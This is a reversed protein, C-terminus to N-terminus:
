SAFGCVRESVVFCKNPCKEVTQELLKKLDKGQEWHIVPLNGPMTIIGHPTVEPKVCIGCAICGAKCVERVKKGKDKSVCALFVQQDRPILAIIKRPCAEVCKGCATCKSEDIVPIEDAGMKIADFPCVIVCNGFGLCGYECAKHGGGILLAAKCDKMRKYKFKEKAANKGGRCQVVAVKKIKNANGVASQGLIAAVKGAVDHGGAICSDAAAENNALAKALEKCSAYGCAGCNAGPLVKILEEIRPDVTLSLKKAAFFLVLGSLLGIIGLTLLSYIVITM